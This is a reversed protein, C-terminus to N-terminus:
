EDNGGGNKLLKKQDGIKEAPIYNELIVLEDLGDLPSFGLWERVENRTLVGKTSLDSGVNAITQIDYSLLSRYNFRFYLNPSILLQRTFAQEIAICLTRIRTNIWNNWEDQNFSGIGLVFSPIDLISAVSSKDLEISDKIALDNLSLPKIQEVSFQESPIMWPQGAESSEIYKNLLKKRGDKSSFEETLADVKVILSPKWKSEMFGKKTESAQNRTNAITRLPVRYSTGKWPLNPDTNIAVHVLEDVDYVKGNVQIKYGFGDQLFSVNSPPLLFLSKLYGQETFPYVVANGDGELLLCRVLACIFAYRTQYKNPTIDVMRSLGNKVRQDGDDTNEMLHITMSAILNSIKNVAAMIEPNESLPIYGDCMLTEWNTLSCFAISKKESVDERKQTPTRNRNKTKKKSM